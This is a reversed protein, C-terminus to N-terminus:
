LAITHYIEDWFMLEYQCSTNFAYNLRAYSIKDDIGDVMRKIKNVLELYDEELYYSAWDKYLQSPNEKIKDKHHEVIAVYSWYCPLVAVLGEEFSNNSTSLLFSSYSIETMIRDSEIADEISLDMKELLKTYSQFEGRAEIAAMEVLGQLSKVSPAKSALLSFNRISAILYNYDQLVYFKFKNAPLTGECLENVFPHELLREWIDQSDKKLRNSLKM